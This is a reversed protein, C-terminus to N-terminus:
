VAGHDLEQQFHQANRCGHECKMLWDLWPISVAHPTDATPHVGVISGCTPVLARSYPPRGHAYYAVSGRYITPDYPVNILGNCRPGRSQLM